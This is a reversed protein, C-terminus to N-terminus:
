NRNKCIKEIIAAVKDTVEYGNGLAKKFWSCANNYDNKILYVVGLLYQSDKDNQEAAKQYWFAAEDLDEGTDTGERYIDGLLKQAPLYGNGASKKFLSIAKEMDKPVIDGKYYSLALNYQSFKNGKADLKEWCAIAGKYNGRAYESNCFGDENQQLMDNNIYIESLSSSSFSINLLFSLAIISIWSSVRNNNMIM